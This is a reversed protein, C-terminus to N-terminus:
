GSYLRVLPFVRGLYVLDPEGTVIHLAVILGFMGLLAYLLYSVGGFPREYRNIRRSSWLAEALAALWIGYFLFTQYQTTIINFSIAIFGLFFALGRLRDGNYFQGLGVGILSLFASLYARRVSVVYTDPKRTSPADLENQDTFRKHCSRCFYEDYSVMAGCYPCHRGIEEKRSGM